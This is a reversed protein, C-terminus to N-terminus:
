ENEFVIMDWYKLYPVQIVIGESTCKYDLKVPSGGNYDPSAM